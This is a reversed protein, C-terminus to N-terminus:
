IDAYINNKLERLKRNLDLLEDDKMKSSQRLNEPICSAKGKLAKGKECVVILVQRENNPNRLREVFGAVELRKLLPTLTSAELELQKALQSVSQRDQGWLLNLVLYQPYTIGMEDLMPKYKRQIALNAAYIGLCLHDDLSLM